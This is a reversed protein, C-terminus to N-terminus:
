NSPPTNLIAQQQRARWAQYTIGGGVVLVILWLYSWILEEVVTQKKIERLEQGRVVDAVPPPSQV